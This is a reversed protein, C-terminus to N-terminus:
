LCYHLLLKWCKSFICVFCECMPLQVKLKSVAPYMSLFVLAPMIHYIPKEDKKTGDKNAASQQTRVGSEMLALSCFLRSVKQFSASSSSLPTPFLSSKQTTVAKYYKCMAALNDM